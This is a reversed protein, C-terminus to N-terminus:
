DRSNGIPILVSLPHAVYTCENYKCKSVSEEKNKLHEPVIWQFSPEECNKLQNFLKIGHQRIIHKIFYESPYKSKHSSFLRKVTQLTELWEKPFQKQNEESSSCWEYLIASFRSLCFRIAAVVNFYKITFVEMAHIYENMNTELLNLCNEALEKTREINKYHKDQTYLTETM